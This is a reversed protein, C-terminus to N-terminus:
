NTIYKTEAKWPTLKMKLDWHHGRATAPEEGAAFGSALLSNQAVIWPLLSLNEQCNGSFVSSWMRHAGALREEWSRQVTQTKHGDASWNWPYFAPSPTKPKPCHFGGSSSLYPWDWEPRRASFPSFYIVLPFWPVIELFFPSLHIYPLFIVLTCLISGWAPTWM